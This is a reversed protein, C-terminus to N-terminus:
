ETSGFEGLSAIGPGREQCAVMTNGDVIQGEVSRLGGRRLFFNGGFLDGSRQYEQFNAPIIEQPGGRRGVKVAMKFSQEFLHATWVIGDDHQFKRQRGKIVPVTFNLAAQGAGVM